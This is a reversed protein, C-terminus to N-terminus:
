RDHPAGGALRDGAGTRPRREAGRRCHILIHRKGFLVASSNTEDLMYRRRRAAGGLWSVALLPLLLPAWLLRKAAGYRRASGLGFQECGEWALLTKLTPYTITNIHPAFGRGYNERKRADDLIPRQFSGTLLYKLRYRLNWYNPITLVLLGGPRLVRVMESLVLFPARLHELVETSVLVDFAADDFPLTGTNLDHVAFAHFGEITAPSTLDLGTVDAGAEILRRALSGQGVGVELVRVRTLDPFAARVLAGAVEQIRLTARDPSSAM